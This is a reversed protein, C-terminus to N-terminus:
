VEDDNSREDLVCRLSLAMRAPAEVVEEEDDDDNDNSTSSILVIVSELLVRLVFRIELLLLWPLLICDVVDFIFGVTV